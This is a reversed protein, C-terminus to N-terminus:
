LDCSEHTVMLTDLWDDLNDLMVDDGHIGFFEGDLQAEVTPSLEEETCLLSHTTQPTDDMLEGVADLLENYEREDDVKKLEGRLLELEIQQAANIKNWEDKMEKVSKNAREM